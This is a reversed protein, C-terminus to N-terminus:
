PSTAAYPALGAGSASIGRLLRDLFAHLRAPMDVGEPALIWQIQLGDMVALTERGAAECDTGPRLEGRAVGGELLAVTRGLVRAYRETFYAHAPHGPNGSEGVLTQFMRVIGPRRTNEAALTVVTAFYRAVADGGEGEGEGGLDAFLREVDHRESQALVGLLLDEKSRFHHLLGGQTIGCDHAIRALSSAHFGWRAFHEVATDLIKRRRADGVAYTGRGTSRATSRRATRGQEQAM